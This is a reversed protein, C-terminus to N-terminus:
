SVHWRRVDEFGIDQLRECFEAIEAPERILEMARRKGGDM